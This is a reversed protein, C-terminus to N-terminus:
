VLVTFAECWFSPFPQVASRLPLQMVPQALGYFASNHYPDHVALYADRVNDLHVVKRQRWREETRAKVLQRRCLM